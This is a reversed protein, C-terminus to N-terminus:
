HHEKNLLGEQVSISLSPSVPFSSCEVEFGGLNRGSLIPPSSILFSERGESRDLCRKRKCWELCCVVPLFSLSLSLYLSFLVWRPVCSTLFNQSFVDIMFADHWGWSLLSSLSTREEYENMRERIRQLSLLIERGRSTKESKIDEKGEYWKISGEQISTGEKEQIQEEKRDKTIRTWSLCMNEELSSDKELSDLPTNMAQFLIGERQVKVLNSHKPLFYSLSHDSETDRWSLRNCNCSYIRKRLDGRKRGENSRWKTSDEFRFSDSNIKCYYLLKM